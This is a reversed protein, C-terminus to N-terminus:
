MRFGAFTGVVRELEERRQRAKQGEEENKKKREEARQAQHQVMLERRGMYSFYWTPQGHRVRCGRDHNGPKDHAFYDDDDDNGGHKFKHMCDLCLGGFNTRVRRSARLVDARLQYRAEGLGDRCDECLASSWPDHRRQITVLAFEYDDLDDLLATLTRKRDALSFLSKIGTNLLSRKHSFIMVDLCEDKHRQIPASVVPLQKELRTRQSARAASLQFLVREPVGRMYVDHKGTPKFNEISGVTNYAIYKTVNHFIQPCDFWYAPALVSFEWPKGDVITGKLSKEHEAYFQSFWDALLSMDKGPKLAEEEEEDADEGLEAGQKRDLLYKNGFHIAWWVDSIDIEGWGDRPERRHLAGMWVRVAAISEDDIVLRGGGEWKGHNAAEVDLLSTYRQVCARSVKITATKRLPAKGDEGVGEDYDRERVLLELDGAADCVYRLNAM